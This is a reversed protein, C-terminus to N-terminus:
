ESAEVWLAGTEGEPTYISPDYGDYFQTMSDYATAVDDYTIASRELDARSKNKDWTAISGDTAQAWAAGAM